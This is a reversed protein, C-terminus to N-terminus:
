IPRYSFRYPTKKVLSRHQLARGVRSLTVGPLHGSLFVLKSLRPSCAPLCYEGSRQETEQRWTGARSSKRGQSGDISPRSLLMTPWAFGEWVLNSETMIKIAAVSTLDMCSALVRQPM